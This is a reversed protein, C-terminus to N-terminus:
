SVFYCTFLAKRTNQSTLESIIVIGTAERSPQYEGGSRHTIEPGETELGYVKSSQKKARRTWCSYLVDLNSKLANIIAM